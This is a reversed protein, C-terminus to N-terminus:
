NSNELRNSKNESGGLSKPIAQWMKSQLVRTKELANRGSSTLKYIRKKRGGRKPTSESFFSDLHGKKVLRSLPTWIAGLSWDEGTVRSIHTQIAFSYANDKLRYVALLLLEETRSLLKM